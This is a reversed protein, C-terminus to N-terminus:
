DGTSTLTLAPSVINGVPLILKIIRTAAPSIAISTVTVASLPLTVVYDGAQQSNDLLIDDTVVPLGAPEWNLPNDWSSGQGGVWKRQAYGSIDILLISTLFVLVNNM